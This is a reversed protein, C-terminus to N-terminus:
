RKYLDPIYDKKDTRHKVDVTFGLQQDSYAKLVRRVATQRETSHTLEDLALAVAEATCVPSFDASESVGVAKRIVFAGRYDLPLSLKFCPLTQLEPSSNFMEKAHQWTGDLFILNKMHKCADYSLAVAGPSPYIVACSTPNKLADAVIDSKAGKVTRCSIINVNRM